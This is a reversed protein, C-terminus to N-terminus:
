ILPAGPEVVSEEQPTQPRPNDYHIFLKGGTHNDAKLNLNKITPQHSLIIHRPPNKEQNRAKIRTKKGLNQMNNKKEFYNVRLYSLIKYPSNGYVHDRSKRILITRKETIPIVM